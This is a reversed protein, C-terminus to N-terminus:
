DWTEPTPSQFTPLDEDPKAQQANRAPFELTPVEALPALNKRLDARLTSRLAEAQAWDAAPVAAPRAGTEFKLEQKPEPAVVPKADPKTESKHVLAIEPLVQVRPEEAKAVTHAGQHQSTIEVAQARGAGKPSKAKQSNLYGAVSELESFEQAGTEKGIEKPAEHRLGEVASSLGTLAASPAAGSTQGAGTQRILSHAYIDPSSGLAVPEGDLSRSASLRQVMDKVERIEGSLQFVKVLVAILAALSGWSVMLAVLMQGIGM